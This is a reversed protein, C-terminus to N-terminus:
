GKEAHQIACAGVSSSRVVVERVLRKYKRMNNHLATHPCTKNIGQSMKRYTMNTKM